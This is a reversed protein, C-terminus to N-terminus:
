RAGLSRSGPVVLCLYGLCNEQSVYVCLIASFLVSDFLYSQRRSNPTRLESDPTQLQSDPSLVGFGPSVVGSEPHIKIHRHQLISDFSHNELQALVFNCRNSDLETGRHRQPQSELNFVFAPGLSRQPYVQVRLRTVQPARVATAISM